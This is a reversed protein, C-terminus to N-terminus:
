WSLSPTKTQPKENAWNLDRKVDEISVLTHEMSAGQLANSQELSDIHWKTIEVEELADLHMENVNSELSPSEYKNAVSIGPETVWDFTVITKLNKHIVGSMSRIDDTLSRISFCVNEHKNELAEKLSDGKPGAPKLEAMISVVGNEKDEQLYFSRFHCCVNTEEISLIRNLYMTQKQGPLPKPHGVEGKCNGSKVRRMFSSSEDFLKKGPELPYYANNSNYTDLAGVTMTYYGDEDPTLVGAKNKGVLATCTYKVTNNTEFAM